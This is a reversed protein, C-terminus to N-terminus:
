IEKQNIRDTYIDLCAECARVGICTHEARCLGVLLALKLLNHLSYQILSPGHTMAPPAAFCISIKVIDAEATQITRLQFRNIETHVNMTFPGFWRSHLLFACQMTWLMQSLHMTM